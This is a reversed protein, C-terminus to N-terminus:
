AFTSASHMFLETENLELQYLRPEGYDSGCVLSHFRAAGPRDIVARSERHTHGSLVLAVKPECAVVAGLSLNFFYANGWRWAEDHGQREIHPEFLPVHTVVVIRQASRAAQALRVAFDRGLCDAIQCDSWPWDVYRADNNLAPKVAAYVKEDHGLRPDAGSYDYWALTGVFAVGDVDLTESELWAFGEEHAAGPLATELLRASGIRGHQPDPVRNWVDHNGAIAVKARARVDAFARLCSRFNTLPEGLDGALVLVDPRMRAAADGAAAIADASSANWHLDSTFAIKLAAATARRVRTTRRREM